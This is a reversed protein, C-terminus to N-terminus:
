SDYIHNCITQTGEEKGKRKGREKEEEGKMRRYLTKNLSYVLIEKDMQELHVTVPNM